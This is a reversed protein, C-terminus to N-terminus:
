SHGQGLADLQLHFVWLTSFLQLGSPLVVKRLLVEGHSVCGSGIQPVEGLEDVKVVPAVM